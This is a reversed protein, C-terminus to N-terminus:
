VTDVQGDQRDGRNTRVHLLKLAQEKCRSHVVVWEGRSKNELLEGKATLVMDLCNYCRKPYKNTM